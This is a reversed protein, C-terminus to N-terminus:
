IRPTRREEKEEVREEKKEFIEMLSYNRGQSTILSRIFELNQDHTQKENFTGENDPSYYNDFFDKKNSLIKRVTAYFQENTPDMFDIDPYAVSLFDNVSASDYYEFKAVDNEPFDIFLTSSNYKPQDGDKTPRIVLIGVTVTGDKYYISSYLRNVKGTNSDPRIPNGIYQFTDKNILLGKLDFVGDEIFGDNLDKQSLGGVITSLYSACKPEVGHRVFYRELDFM